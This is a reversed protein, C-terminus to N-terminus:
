HKKRNKFQRLRELNKSTLGKPKYALREQFEDLCKLHDADVKCHYKAITHILRALNAVQQTETKGARDYHFRLAKEANEETVLVSLATLSDVNVGQHALASALQRIQIRYHDISALAAKHPPANRDFPDPHARQHLYDDIEDLFSQPLADWPLCYTDRFSPVRLLIEPWGEITQVAKNWSVITARWRRKPEKRLSENRLWAGFAEAVEDTVNTPSIGRDSCHRIFAPLQCLFEKTALKSRLEAWETSLGKTGRLPPSVYRKIAFNVNSCINQFTKDKLGALKPQFAQVLPRLRERDVITNDIDLGLLQSFRRISSTADRRRAASLESDARIADILRALTMPEPAVSLQPVALEIETIENM